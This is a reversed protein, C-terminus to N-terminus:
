DRPVLFRQGRYYMVLGDRRIEELLPGETLREGEKYKRSNILVFRRQPVENYVHVDIHLPALAIRKDLLLESLNPLYDTRAAVPPRIVPQDAGSATPSSTVTTSGTNSASNQQPGPAADRSASTAPITTKVEASLPRVEGRVPPISQKAALGSRDQTALAIPQPGTAVEANAQSATSPPQSALVQRAVQQNAQQPQGTPEAASGEGRASAVWYIVGGIVVLNVVVIAAIIGLWNQAQGAGPAAEVSITGPGMHQQRTAQSKKLADLIFSM